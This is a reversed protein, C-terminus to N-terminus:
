NNLSQNNLFNCILKSLKRGEKRALLEPFIDTSNMKILADLILLGERIESSLHPLASNEEALCLATLWHGALNVDIKSIKLLRKVDPHYKNLVVTSDKLIFRHDLCPTLDGYVLYSIEWGLNDFDFGASTAEPAVKPIAVSKKIEMMGENSYRIKTFLDHHFGIVEQLNRDSISIEPRCYEPAEIVGGSKSVDIFQDGFIYTLIQLANEPQLYTLLPSCFCSYDLGADQKSVFLISGNKTVINDIDALSLKESNYTNFIPFNCWPKELDTFNKILAVTMKEIKNRFIVDNGFHHNTDIIAQLHLFYDPLITERIHNAVPPIISENLISHRGFPLEFNDCNVMIRLFPIEVNDKLLNYTNSIFVKKQYVEHIASDIGLIIQFERGSNTTNYTKGAPLFSKSWARNVQIPLGHKLPTGIKEPPYVLIKMKLFKTYKNLVSTLKTMTAKPPEKRLFTIRFMTGRNQEVEKLKYIHIPEDSLLSGSTAEYGETGNNTKLYFSTQGPIAAVSMKGVGFTGISRSSSNQKDSHFLTFFHLLNTETMGEGNDEIYVTLNYDDYEAYILCQTAMADYSNIVYERIWENPDRFQSSMDKRLKPSNAMIGEREIERLATAVTKKM